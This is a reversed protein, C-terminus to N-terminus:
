LFLKMKLIPKESVSWKTKIKLSIDKGRLSSPLSYLFVLLMSPDVSIPDALNVVIYNRM